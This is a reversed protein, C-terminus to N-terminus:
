ARDARSRAIGLGVGSAGPAESAGNEEGPSAAPLTVLVTSPADDPIEAEGGHAEAITRVIALGLGAGGRAADNRRIFREFALGRLHTPFGPGEDSVSIQLRDELERLAITVTGQGHILANDVLNGIAQEIRLPDVHAITTQADVTIRRATANSHGAARAAVLRLAEDLDVTEISLPLGSEELQALTLLDDALRSVRRAEDAASTVAARAAEPLDEQLALELEAALVTLPTRLEHSANQTLERQRTLARDLRGIMGNLTRGLRGIEDDAAPVPLRASRDRGTIEDARQRMSEVPRLAAAAALYCATASLLLALPGGILLARGFSENAGERGKLSRGVVVATRRRRLPVAVLRSRKAVFRIRDRDGHLGRTTAARAQAATLLRVDAVADSSALAHGERDVIQGFAGQPRLLEIAAPSKLAAPGRQAVVTALADARARLDGDISANLSAEFRLFVLGFVIALAFPLLLTGALTLRVRLPLLLVRGRLRSFRASM